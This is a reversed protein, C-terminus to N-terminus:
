INTELMMEMEKEIMAKKIMQLQDLLPNQVEQNVQNLVNELLDKKEMEQDKMVEVEVGQVVELPQNPDLGLIILEAIGLSKATERFTVKREM